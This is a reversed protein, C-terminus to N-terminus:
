PLLMLPATAPGCLPETYAPHIGGDELQEVALDEDTKEDIVPLWVQTGPMLAGLDLQKNYKKFLWMPSGGEQNCLDWLTEGHRVVYPKVDAVKYRGYFDEELALHYELRTKNFRELADPADLPILLAQGGRITSRRMRNLARLRMTPVGLWEAYHGMTEDVAVRIEAIGPSPLSTELGYVDVDFRAMAVPRARSTVTSTAAASTSAVRAPTTDATTM